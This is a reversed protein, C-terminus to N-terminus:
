LGIAPFLSLWKQRPDKKELWPKEIQEKGKRRSHFFRNQLSQQNIMVPTTNRTYDNRSKPPSPLDLFSQPNSKENISHAM